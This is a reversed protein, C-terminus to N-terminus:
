RDKCVPVNFARTSVASAGGFDDLGDFVQGCDDIINWARAVNHRFDQGAVIVGLLDFCLEIGDLILEVLHM